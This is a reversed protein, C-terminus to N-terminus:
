YKTLHRNVNTIKQLLIAFVISNHLTCENKVEVFKHWRVVTHFMSAGFQRM